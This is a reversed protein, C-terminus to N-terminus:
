AAPELGALDFVGLRSAGAEVLALAADATLVGGVAKIGLDPGAAERLFRIDDPTAARGSCGTATVLFQAEAGIVLAAARKLEDRTHLGSEVIVKLPREEAAERLDRLERLLAAEAGEKLLGPHLVVDFEQAGADLATEIEYRKVDADATGFPFGVLASVKVPSEDLALAALAVRSGPVCVALCGAKRARACLAELDARTADPRLAIVDVRRLLPVDSVSAAHCFPPRTDFASPFM